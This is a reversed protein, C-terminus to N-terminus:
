RFHFRQFAETDDSRLTKQVWLWGQCMEKRIMKTSQRLWSLNSILQGPRIEFRRTTTDEHNKIYDEALEGKLVSAAYKVYGTGPIYEYTLCIYRKKESIWVCTESLKSAGTHFTEIQSM